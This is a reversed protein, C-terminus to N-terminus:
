QLYVTYPQKNSSLYSYDNMESPTYPQIHTYDNKASGITEFSAKVCSTTDSKSVCVQTKGSGSPGCLQYDKASTCDAILICANTSVDWIQTSACVPVYRNIGEAYVTKGSIGLNTYDLDGFLNSLLNGQEKASQKASEIKDPSVATNPPPLHLKDFDMNSRAYIDRLVRYLYIGGFSFVIVMIYDLLYPPFPIRKNIQILGIYVITLVIIVLFV